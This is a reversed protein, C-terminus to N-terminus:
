IDLVSNVSGFGDEVQLIANPDPMWQEGDVLFQYRYEREPVLPVELEWVGGNSRVLRDAEPDWGNWDGVVAVEGAEPAELVFRVVIVGDTGRDQAAPHQLLFGGAAFTMVLLLAAAAAAGAPVPLVRGARKRGREPIASLVKAKMREVLWPSAASERDMGGDLMRYGELLRACRACQRAHATMEPSIEGWEGTIREFEQRWRTCTM